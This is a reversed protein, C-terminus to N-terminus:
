KDLNAVEEQCLLLLLKACVVDVADVWEVFQKWWVPGLLKTTLLPWLRFWVHKTKDVKKNSSTLRDWSQPISSCRPFLLKGLTPLHYHPQKASALSARWTQGPWDVRSLAQDFIVEVHCSNQPRGWTSASNVETGFPRSRTNSRSEVSLYSLGSLDLMEIVKWFWNRCPVTYLSQKKSPAVKWRWCSECM